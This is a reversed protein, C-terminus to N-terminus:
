KVATTTQKNAAARFLGGSVLWLAVFVSTGMVAEYLGASGPSGWGAALAVAGVLLQVAATAAMARAMGASRFRALLSGLFATALVGIFVLNAPNDEGGLFGVAGNIWILLFAAALAVGAALRDFIDDSVRVALELGAGVIGFLLGMVVYDSLTWPANAVFPLLLLFAPVSWGIARLPTGRPGGTNDINAAM